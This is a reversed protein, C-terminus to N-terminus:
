PMRSLADTMGGIAVCMALLPPSLWALNGWGEGYRREIRKAAQFWGAGAVIAVLAGLFGWWFPTM